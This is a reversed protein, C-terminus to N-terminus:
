PIILMDGSVQHLVKELTTTRWLGSLGSYPMSRGMVLIGPQAPNEMQAALARPPAGELIAFTPTASLTAALAELRAQHEATVEAAPDNGGPLLDGFEEKLWQLPPIVTVLSLPWGTADALEEGHHAIAAGQLNENGAGTDIAVFVAQPCPREPDVLWACLTDNFRLFRRLDTPIPTGAPGRQLLVLDMDQQMATDRILTAADDDLWALEYRAERGSSRLEAVLTDMGGRAQTMARHRVQHRLEPTLFRYDMGSLPSRVPRLLLLSSAGDACCALRAVLQRDAANDGTMVAMIRQYM